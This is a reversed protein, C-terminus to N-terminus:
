SGSVLGRLFEVFSRFIGMPGWDFFSYISSFVPADPTFSVIIATFFLLVCLVILLEVLVIILILWWPRKKKPKEEVVATVEKDTLDEVAKEVKQIEQLLHLFQNQNLAAENGNPNGYVYTNNHVTETHTNTTTTTSESNTENGTLILANDDTAAEEVVEPELVEEEVTEEVVEDVIPDWSAEVTLVNDNLVLNTWGAFSHDETNELVVSEILSVQNNLNPLDAIRLDELEVDNDYFRIEYTVLDEENVEPEIVREIVREYALENTPAYYAAKTELANALIYEIIAEKNLEVNVKINNDKAFRELVLINKGSLITKLTDTLHDREELKKFIISLLEAKKIRKPVSVSYKKGIERLEPITSVKYNIPRFEEITLGDIQNADDHFIPNLAEVYGTFNGTSTEALEMLGRLDQESLGRKVLYEVTETWFADLFNNLVEADAFYNYYGVLHSDSFRDFFTLKHSLEDALGARQALTQEVKPTLVARLAKVRIKRPLSLNIQAFYEKISNADIKVLKEVIEHTEVSQDGIVIRLNEKYM